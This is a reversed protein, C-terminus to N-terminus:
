PSPSQTQIPSLLILATWGLIVVFPLLQVFPAHRWGHKWWVAAVLFTVTIPGVVTVLLSAPVAALLGGAAQLLLGVATLVGALSAGLFNLM